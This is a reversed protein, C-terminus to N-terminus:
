QSEYLEGDEIVYTKESIMITETKQVEKVTRLQFKGDTSYEVLVKNGQSVLMAVYEGLAFIGEDVTTLANMSESPPQKKAEIVSPSSEPEPPNYYQAPQTSQTPQSVPAPPLPKVVDTKESSTKPPLVTTTPKTSVQTFDERSYQERGFQHGVTLLTEPIRDDATSKELPFGAGIRYQKGPVKYGSKLFSRVRREITRKEILTAEAPFSLTMKRTTEDIILHTNNGLDAPANQQIPFFNDQDAEYVLVLTIPESM